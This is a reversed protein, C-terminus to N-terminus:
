IEPFLMYMFRAQDNEPNIVVQVFVNLDYKEGVDFQNYTESDQITILLPTNHDRDEMTVIIYYPYLNDGEQKQIIEANISIVDKFSYAGYELFLELRTNEDVLETNKEQEENLKLILEENKELEEDLKSELNIIQRSLEENEEKLQTQNTCGSLIILTLCILLKKNM